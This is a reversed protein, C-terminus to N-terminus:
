NKGFEATATVDGELLISCNASAGVCGSPALWGIFQDDTSLPTASLTVSTGSPYAASCSGTSCNLQLQDDSVTGEGDGTLTVTLTANEQNSAEIFTVVAEQAEDMTVTCDSNDATGTCAGSWRVIDGDNSPVAYLSVQSGSTYTQSCPSRANDCGLLEMYDGASGERGEVRLTLTFSRVTERFSASVSSDAAIAFSCSTNSAAFACDGGWGVFEFGDQAEAQLTVQSGDPYSEQCVATGAEDQECGIISGTGTVQGGTSTVNVDLDFLRDFNATISRAQDLTLTCEDGEGACVDSWNAFVFGNAATANLTVSQGLAFDEQCDSSALESCDIGAPTSVVEGQGDITITLPASSGFNVGVSSDETISLTCQNGQTGACPGTWGSLAMGADAIATLVIDSGSSFKASCPSDPVATDCDIGTPNSVIRGDGNPAVTLTPSDVFYAQQRLSDDTYVKFSCESGQQDGEECTIPFWSSFEWGEAADARLVVTEGDSYQASCQEYDPREEHSRRDCNIKGADDTVAGFGKIYSVLVSPPLPFEVGLYPKASLDVIGADARQISCSATNECPQTSSVGAPLYWDVAIAEGNRRAELTLTEGAAIRLNCSEGEPCSLGGVSVTDGAQGQAKLRLQYACSNLYDETEGGEYVRPSDAEVDTIPSGTLMLRLYGQGHVLVDSDTGGSGIVDDLLVYAHSVPGYSARWDDVAINQGVWHSSDFTIAHGDEANGKGDIDLLDGAMQFVQLYVTRPSRGPVPKYSVKVWSQAGCSLLADDSGDGIAPEFEGSVDRGLWFDAYNNGTNFAIEPRLHKQQRGANADNFDPLGVRYFLAASYASFHPASFQLRVEGSYSGAQISALQSEAIADGQEDVLVGSAEDQWLGTDPNYSVMGVDIQQNGPTIDQYRPLVDPDIDVTMTLPPSFQRLRNGDQDAAAFWWYGGSSFAEDATASEGPFASLDDGSYSAAWLTSTAEPLGSVAIDEGQAEGNSIVLASLELNPFVIDPLENSREGQVDVVRGQSLSAGNDFVADVRIRYLQQALDFQFRGQADSVTSAALENNANYLSISLDSLPEGSDMRVSGNVVTSTPTDHNNSPSPSNSDNCATLLASALLLHALHRPTM